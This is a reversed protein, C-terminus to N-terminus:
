STNTFFEGLVLRQTAHIGTAVALSMIAAAIIVRKM